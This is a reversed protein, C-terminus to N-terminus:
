SYDCGGQHTLPCGGQAPTLIRLPYGSLTPMKQHWGRHGEREPVNPSESKRSSGKVTKARKMEEQFTVKGVWKRVLVNGSLRSSVLGFDGSGLLGRECM